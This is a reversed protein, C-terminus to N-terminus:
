RGVDEKLDPDWERGEWLLVAEKELGSATRTEDRGQHSVAYRVGVGVGEAGMAAVKENWLVQRVRGKGTGTGGGEDDEEVMIWVVPIGSRRVAERVGKTAAQKACLVGVTNAGRWGEPAGAMSGELERVREPAPKAKTAKCQVLVRLPYPLSPLKWQGVLDIGFDARGGTRTLAHFGLRPLTHLCLYEYYTGIYVTSSPSLSTRSAHALFTPLSHHNPSSAPPTSASPRSPSIPPPPTSSSFSSSFSPSPKFLLERSFLHPRVRSPLM